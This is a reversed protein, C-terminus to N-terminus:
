GFHFIKSYNKGPLLSGIGMQEHASLQLQTCSQVIVDNLVWRCVRAAIFYGLINSREERIRFINPSLEMM